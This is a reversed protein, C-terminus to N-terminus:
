RPRESRGLRARLLDIDVFYDCLEDGDVAIVPIRELYARHLVDDRTIDREILEFGLEERLPQLAALADECLHCGPATYITLVSV